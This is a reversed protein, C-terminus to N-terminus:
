AISVIEHAGSRTDILLVTGNELPHHSDDVTRVGTSWASIVGDREGWTLDFYDEDEDLPRNEEKFLCVVALTQPTLIMANLSTYAHDSLRKATRRLSSVVDGSERRLETAFLGFYRESDTQGRFAAVLDSDIEDILEDAQPLLGNHVFAVEGPVGSATFPHTNELSVALDGTAWRLHVMGNSTAVQGTVKAFLDSEHAPEWGMATEIAGDATLDAFGWGDCHVRSLEALRSSDPAIVQEATVPTHSHWALLRCM